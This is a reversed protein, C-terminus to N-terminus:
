GNALMLGTISEKTAMESLWFMHDPNFILAANLNAARLAACLRNIRDHYEETSETLESVSSENM